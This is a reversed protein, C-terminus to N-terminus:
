NSLVFNSQKNEFFVFLKSRSWFLLQRKEEHYLITSNQVRSIFFFWREEPMFALSRSHPSSLPLPHTDISLHVRSTAKRESKMRTASFKHKSDVNLRKDEPYTYTGIHKITLLHITKLRYILITYKPDARLARGASAVSTCRRRSLELTCWTPTDITRSYM